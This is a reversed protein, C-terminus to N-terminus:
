VESTTTEKISSIERLLGSLNRPKGPIIKIPIPIINKILVMVRKLSALYKETGFVIIENLKRTIPIIINNIDTKNNETELTLM